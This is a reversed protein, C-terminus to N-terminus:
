ILLIVAIAVVALGLFISLIITAIKSKFLQETLTKIRNQLQTLLSDDATQENIRDLAVKTIADPDQVSSHVIFPAQVGDVKTAM